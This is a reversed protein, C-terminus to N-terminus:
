KKSPAPVTLLVDLTGIRNALRDMVGLRLQYSGAPLPLERHLQVGTRLLSAFQEDTVPQRFFESFSGSPKGKGDTAVAIFQLDATRHGDETKNFLIAHTDVLMDIAVPAGATQPPLVRAKMILQTSNPAGRYMAIAAERDPDSTKLPDAIAYYGARCLVKAGPRGTKVQLKRYKGNWNANTSHYAITYYSEATALADAIEEGLDNRGMYARGGTLRAFTLMTNERM